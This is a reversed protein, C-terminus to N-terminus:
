ATSHSMPLKELRVLVFVFVFVIKFIALWFVIQLWKVFLQVRRLEFRVEAQLVADM